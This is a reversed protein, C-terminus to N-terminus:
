NQTPEQEKKKHASLFIRYVYFLIGYGLVIGWFGFLPYATFNLIFLSFLIFDIFGIAWVILLTNLLIRSEIRIYLWGLLVFLIALLLPTVLVFLRFAFSNFDSFTHIYHFDSQIDSEFSPIPGCLSYANCNDEFPPLFYSGLIVILGLISLLYGRLLPSRFPNM